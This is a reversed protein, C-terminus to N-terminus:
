SLLHGTITKKGLKISLCGMVRIFFANVSKAKTNKQERVENAMEGIVPGVVTQAPLEMVKLLASGPPTHTEPVTLTAVMPENDPITFPIVAPVV